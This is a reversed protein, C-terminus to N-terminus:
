IKSLTRFLSAMQAVCLEKAGSTEDKWHESSLVLMLTGFPGFFGLLVGIGGIDANIKSGQACENFCKSIDAASSVIVVTVIAVSLCLSAASLARLSKAVCLYEPLTNIRYELLLLQISYAVICLLYAALLANLLIDSIEM